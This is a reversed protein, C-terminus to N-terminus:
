PCCDTLADELDWGVSSAGSAYIRCLEVTKVKNAESLLDLAESVEKQAAVCNTEVSWAKLNGLSKEGIRSNNRCEKLTISSAARQIGSLSTNIANSIESCIAFCPSSSVLSAILVSRFMM